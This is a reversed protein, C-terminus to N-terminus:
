LEKCASLQFHVASIEFFATHKRGWWGRGAAPKEEVSAAVACIRHEAIYDAQLSFQLRNVPRQRGMQELHWSSNGPHNNRVKARARLVTLIGGCGQLFAWAYCNCKAFEGFVVTLGKGLRISVQTILWQICIRSLWSEMLKCKWANQM